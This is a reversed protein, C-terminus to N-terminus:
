SQVARRVVYSEGDPAIVRITTTAALAFLEEPSYPRERLDVLRDSLEAVEPPPRKHPETIIQKNYITVRGVMLLRLDRIIYAALQEDSIEDGPIDLRFGQGQLGGGNTFEIDFDFQVRKEEM